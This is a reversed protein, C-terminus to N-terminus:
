DKQINEFRYNFLMLNENQSGPIRITKEKNNIIYNLNISDPIENGYGIISIEYNGGDFITESVSNNELYFPTPVKFIKNPNLLRNLAPLMSNSFIALIIIFLPTIILSLQLLFSIRARNFSIALENLELKIKNIAHISLEYEISNKKDLNSELQYANLLKDKINPFKDGILNSIFEDSSNKFLNKYNLYCKLLIYIHTTLYSLSYYTFVFLRNNLELYFLYEIVILVLLSIIFLLNVRLLSVKLDSIAKTRRFSDLYILLKNNM